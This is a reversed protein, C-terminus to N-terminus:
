VAVLSVDSAKARITRTAGFLLNVTMEIKDRDVKTITGRLLEFASSRHEVVDGVSLIQQKAAILRGTLIKRILDRPHGKIVAYRFLEEFTRVAAIQADSLPHPQGAVRIVDFVEAWRPLRQNIAWADLRAFCYGDWMPVTRTERLREGRRPRYLRSVTPCFAEYGEDGMRKVAKFEPLVGWGEHLGASGGCMVAYWQTQHQLSM